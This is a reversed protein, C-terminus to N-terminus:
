AWFYELVRRADERADDEDQDLTKWTKVGGLQNRSQSSCWAPARVVDSLMSDELKLGQEMAIAKEKFVQTKKIM